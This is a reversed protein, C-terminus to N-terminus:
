RADISRSRAARRPAGTSRPSTGGGASAAVGVLEDIACDAAVLGGVPALASAPLRQRSTSIWDISSACPVVRVSSGDFYVSASPASPMTAIRRFQLRPRPGQDAPALAEPVPPSKLM